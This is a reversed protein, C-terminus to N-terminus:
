LRADFRSEQWILRTLFELPLDNSLAASALTQCMPDFVNALAPSKSRDPEATAPENLELGSEQAIRWTSLGYTEREGVDHAAFTRNVGVTVSALPGVGGRGRPSVYCGLFGSLNPVPAHRRSM